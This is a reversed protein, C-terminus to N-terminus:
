NRIETVSKLKFNEDWNTILKLDYVTYDHSIKEKARYIMEYTVHYGGAEAPIVTFSEWDIDSSSFPYRGRHAKANRYIEERTPNQAGYWSTVQPSLFEPLKEIENSNMSQYYDAIIEKLQDEPTKVYAESSFVFGYITMVIALVGVAALGLVKSSYKKLGQKSESHPREESEEQTEKRHNNGSNKDQHDEEFHSEPTEKEVEKEKFQLPPYLEKEIKHSFVEEPSLTRSNVANFPILSLYDPNSPDGGYGFAIYIPCDSSNLDPFSKFQKESLIDYSNKYPNTRFKAEVRFNRGTLKCRFEFDPELSSAVFRESNQSYDHTKKAIDYHSKPFIKKEIFNEFKQGKTWFDENYNENM